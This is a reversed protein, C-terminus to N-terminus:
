SYTRISSAIVDRVKPLEIGDKFWAVQTKNSHSRFHCQLCFYENLTIETVDASAKTIKPKEIPESSSKTAAAVVKPQKPKASLLLAFFLRM